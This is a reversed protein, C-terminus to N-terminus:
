LGYLRNVRTDIQVDLRAAEEPAASERLKVLRELASASRKPITPVPLRELIDLDVQAYLRGAEMTLAQYYRGLASSNVLALIARLNTDPRAPVLLHINNLCYFGDPDFVARLSDATQRLLLKPREYYARNGGSKLLAPDLRVYAGDWSIRYRDIERGSRLLRGVPGANGEGDPSTILSAQGQRGIMGSYSRVWDGLAHGTEMRKLFGLTESDPVLRFRHLPGWVIDPIPLDVGTATSLEAPSGCIRVRVRHEPGAPAKRVFLVVSQGVRGYEWFDQRILTLELLTHGLLLRRMGSFYRGTLFSDPLVFGLVGGPRLLELGREVFLPYTNLKFEASHPYRERLARLQEAGHNVAGRLGSSIYPPNGLCLDYAEAGGSLLADKQVLDAQPVTKRCLLLPLSDLDWGTLRDLQDGYAHVSARLFAGAGCAPDIVSRAQPQYRKAQRLMYGTLLEGTYYAGASRHSARQKRIALGHPGCFVERRLMEQYVREAQDGNAQVWQELWPDSAGAPLRGAILGDVIAERVTATLARDGPFLRAMRIMAEDLEV